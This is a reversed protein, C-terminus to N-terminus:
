QDVQRAAAFATHMASLLDRYAPEKISHAHEELYQAMAALRLYGFTRAASKLSHAERVIREVSECLSIEALLKLRAETDSWFVSRVALAGERGIETVLAEFAVHDRAAADAFSFDHLLM